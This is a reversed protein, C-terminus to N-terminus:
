PKYQAHLLCASIRWADAHLAARWLVRACLIDDRRAGALQGRPTTMASDARCLPFTITLVVEASPFVYPRALVPM